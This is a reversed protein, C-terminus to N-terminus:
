RCSFDSFDDSLGSASYDMGFLSAVDYGACEDDQEKINM